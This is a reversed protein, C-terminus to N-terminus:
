AKIRQAERERVTLDRVIMLVAPVALLIAITGFVAKLVESM